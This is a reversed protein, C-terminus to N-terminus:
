RKLRVKATLTSRNGAADTAKLTLTPRLTRLQAGSLAELRKRAKLAAGEGCRFAVTLRKRSLKRAGSRTCAPALTDAAPPPAAVTIGATAPASAGVGDVARYTFGDAGSFGAAPTYGVRGSAQDVAGLTLTPRCGSSRGGSRTATPDRCPLALTFPTAFATTGATGACVPPM